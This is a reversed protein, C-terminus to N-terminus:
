QCIAFQGDRRNREINAEAVRAPETGRKMPQGALGRGTITAIEILLAPQPASAPGGSREGHRLAARTSLADARWQDAIM